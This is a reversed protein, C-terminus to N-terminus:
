LVSWPGVNEVILFVNGGMPRLRLYAGAKGVAQLRQGATMGVFNGTGTGAGGTRVICSTAYPQRIVIDPSGAVFLTDSLDFAMSVNAASVAWCNSPTLMESSVTARTLKSFRDSIWGKGFFSVGYGAAGVGDIRVPDVIACNDLNNVIQGDKFFFLAPVTGSTLTISPEVVRVNGIPYTKASGTSRGVIFPTDGSQNVGGNRNPDIVQPRVVEILPGTASTESAIFATEKSNKYVPFLSRIFGTLSGATDDTFAVRYGCTSGDDVHNEILIDVVKPAAGAFLPMAIAIGPGACNRTTPNIIRVGKLEDTNHDPEIDLGGAPSTGGINQWTPSEVVLGDATIISMGQRRCADAVHKLVYGNKPAGTTAGAGWYVGDGWMNHTRPQILTCNTGGRVDIGMGFEGTVAANLDKRGNLRAYSITVNDRDWVRLMQYIPHNHALLEMSAGAEFEIDINSPVDLVMGFTPSGAALPSFRWVGANIILKKGVSADIAKQVQTRMDGATGARVAAIEALTLFEFAHVSNWSLWASLKAAIAGTSARLWGLLGAGGPAALDVAAVGQILRFKAMEFTGSTTFPLASLLPAYAKGLYNVIQTASTMALNASYAVSDSYGAVGYITMANRALEAQEKATAALGAQTTSIGAQTTATNGGTTAIGAQVAATALKDSWNTTIDLHAAVVIQESTLANAASDSAATRDEGTQLRDAAAQQADANTAGVDQNAITVLAQVDILAQQASDVNPFPANQIIQYLNCPNNPVVVSADFFKKGTDPNRATIRYSSGNVGLANPWLNLIALGDADATATVQEPVVFGDYIETQDLKATYIGGAVSEGGQDSAACTVAITPTPM